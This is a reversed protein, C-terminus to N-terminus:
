VKFKRRFGALGILGVGLLLLTSPEPVAVGSVDGTGSSNFGTLYTGGNTVNTLQQTSFVFTVPDGIVLGFPLDQTDIGNVTGWGTFAIVGGSYNVTTKGVDLGLGFGPTSNKTLLDFIGGTGSVTGGGIPINVIGILNIDAFINSNLSGVLTGDRVFDMTLLSDSELPNGSGGSSSKADYVASGDYVLDLGTFSIQLPVAHAAVAVGLVFTLVLTTIFLKRM